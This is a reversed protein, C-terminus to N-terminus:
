QPLRPPVVPEGTRLRGVVPPPPAPSRRAGDAAIEVIVPHNPVKVTIANANPVTQIAAAGILPDYLKIAPAATALTVTVAHDPDTENWLALQFTGDSKEMLLSNENATAGTLDYALSDTRPPGKDALITTLNHLAAGAPKPSGDQNMLGFKGSGDDFLAYFYTKHSGHKIGDFVADLVFRATDAPSFQSENWGIETTIVPRAAAALAANGNLRKISAGPMQAKTPYTHANAYDAFQSLDGVKDYNGRYNNQPTWGSGFSMNIVPLGLARGTAYVQQQFRATWAISNGQSIAYPDDNENGGEIYNLIGQRALESVRALNAMDSAPSGETMYADFKAGTANAMLQWLGNPGVDNANNPCDRLNKIGLYNIAAATAARNQYGFKNFDLHTNIGLSSTVTMTAVAVTPLMGPM